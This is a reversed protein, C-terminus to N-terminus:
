KLLQSFAIERCVIEKILQKSIRRAGYTKRSKNFVALILTLLNEYEIKRRDHFGSEVWSYYGSRSCKLVKAMKGMRFESRHDYMFLYKM